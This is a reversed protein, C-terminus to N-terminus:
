VFFPSAAFNAILSSGGKGKGTVTGSLRRSLVISLLWLSAVPVQTLFTKKKLLREWVQDASAELETSVRVTMGDAVIGLAVGAALYQCHNQLIWLSIIEAPVQFSAFALVFVPLSGVFFVGAGYVLGGRIGAPFATGKRLALFIAAFVPGYLFPHFKMYTSTWELRSRFLEINRYQREVDPFLVPVVFFFVTGVLFMTIGADLSCQIWQKLSDRM